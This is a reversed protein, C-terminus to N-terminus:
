RCHLNKDYKRFINTFRTFLKGGFSREKIQIGGTLVIVENSNDPQLNLHLANTNGKIEKDFYGVYSIVLIDDKKCNLSFKGDFDTTTRNLTGKILVTAGPLPLNAEDLITGTVTISDGLRTNQLPISVFKKDTQMTKPKEQAKLPSTNLLLLSFIGSLAYSLYNHQKKRQLFLSRDLQNTTFRGCLDGQKEFQKILQEDSFATFDFVEKTCSNCFKGKETNLMKSWDEHCPEPITIKLNKM